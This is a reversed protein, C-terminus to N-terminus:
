YKVGDGNPLATLVDNVIDVQDAATWYDFGRRPTYGDEGKEGTDGKDGKDGKIGQIGQDGKDGKDGKPLIVDTPQVDPMDSKSKSFSVVMIDTGNKTVSPIYYGGDEGKEGTGGSPIDAIEQELEEVKDVLANHKEKIENDSRSDFVKKLDEATYGQDSPNNPLNVVGDKYSTIKLNDLAM